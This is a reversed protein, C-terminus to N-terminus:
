SDIILFFIKNGYNSFLTSGNFHPMKYEISGSESINLLKLSRGNPDIIGSICVINHRVAKHPWVKM